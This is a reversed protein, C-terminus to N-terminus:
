GRSLTPPLVHAVQEAAARVVPTLAQRRDSRMRLAPAQVIVAARAHGDEDLVPAGISRVGEVNEELDIAVGSHRIDDLQQALQRRTALTGPAVPELQDPLSMLYEDADPSFALMAKGSATSYLPFRAGVSQTFRLPLTSEVRMLVVSEHGDRVALNVSESTEAAVSQLTPLAKDLGLAREAARGLVATRAGLHYGDTAPNRHLLGATTLARAIRSTTGVTLGTCQALSSLTLEGAEALTWLVRLAREISQTGTPATAHPATPDSPGTM